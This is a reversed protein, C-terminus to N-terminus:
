MMVKCYKGCFAIGYKLIHQYGENKLGVEYQKKEIQDLADQCEKKLEKETKAVKFEMIVAIERRLIDKIFIDSRGTGTERNSEILYQESYQLLGALFGHYFSENGDYFSISQILWRNIENEFIESNSDLIAHFFTSKDAEKIQRDFWERVTKKYISCIEINPIVAEFFMENDESFVRIAKLYGTYLLFSWIHEENARMNAYTIDDYLHKIITGGNVLEEILERVPPKSKEILEQIISNSSTNVWYPKAKIYADELSNQIYKLVSWPNYIETRGFLYGDYWKKIEDFKDTQQYDNLMDKVESEIFGFTDSFKTDTVAYVDLNNLGTFISEKSIRLCGTLVAFAIHINTKLVSSFVSRILDVMKSYYGKFYANQLPVDYEDILIIVKQGYVEYLCDSLFKLASCYVAYNGKRSCIDYFLKKDEEFLKSSNLIVRHRKFEDAIVSKFMEFATEDDAAEIDKLTISIVPHQGQYKMYQEGTEAIKLGDFLYSHDEDSKEFFYRIMSMNLTKGFRRPRTFLSVKGFRHVLDRLLLSKDVFYYNCDIITKFDEVGIPLEKEEDM